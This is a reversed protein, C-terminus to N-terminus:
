LVDEAMDLSGAALATVVMTMCLDSRTERVSASRFLITPKLSSCWLRGLLEKISLALVM